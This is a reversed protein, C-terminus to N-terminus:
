LVWRRVLCTAFCAIAARTWRNTRRTRCGSFQGRTALIALPPNTPGEQKRAKVFADVMKKLAEARSLKGDLYDIWIPKEVSVLPALGERAFVEQDYPHYSSDLFRRVTEATQIFVLLHPGQRFVLDSKDFGNKSLQNQFEVLANGSGSTEADLAHIAEHLLASFLGSGPSAATNLVCVGHNSEKGTVTMAGPWPVEAILYIPVTYNAADMGLSTMFYKFCEEQKPALTKAIRANAEEIMKRHQPWITDIFAKEIKKLSRALHIARQRLPITSGQRTTFTEPFQSFTREADASNKFSFIRFDILPQSMPVQRAADIAQTLGEIPPLTQDSSALKYVYFYLDLFRNIRIEFRKQTLPRSPYKPVPPSALSNSALLLVVFLKLYKM